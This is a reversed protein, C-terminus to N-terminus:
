NRGFYSLAKKKWGKVKEDLLNLKAINMYHNNHYLSIRPIVNMTTEDQFYYNEPHTTLLFKYQESTRIKELSREDYYGNPLALTDIPIDFLAELQQKSDRIEKEFVDSAEHKGLICHSLTHSGIEIDKAICSRIDAEDMFEPYILDTQLTGKLNHLISDREVKPKVFLLNLVKIGVMLANESNIVEEFLVKHQNDKIILADTREAYRNIISFVQQTWNIEQKTITDCIINHNAPFGYANLLPLAHQIFDKYGDDFSLIAKPKGTSTYSNQSLADFTIVDFNKGIYELLKRFINVKMPPWAYDIEDTVRHLCIVKIKENLKNM